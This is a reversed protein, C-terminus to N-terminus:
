AGPNALDFQGKGVKVFRSETGKNKIESFIASYLTAAPTKGKTTWGHAAAYDVMAQCGKPGGDEKLCAAAHDLLSPGRDAKPTKPKPAKTLGLREARSKKAPAAEAQAEAQPEAEREVPMTKTPWLGRLQGAKIRLPRGTREYVGDWGGASNVAKVRVCATQSGVKVAYLSGLKVTKSM